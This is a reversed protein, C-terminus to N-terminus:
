QQSGKEQLEGFAPVARGTTVDPLDAKRVVAEVTQRSSDNM